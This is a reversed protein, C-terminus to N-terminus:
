FFPFRLDLISRSLTENMTPNNDQDNSQNRDIM